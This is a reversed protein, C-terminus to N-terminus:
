RTSRSTRATGVRGTSSVIGAHRPVTAGPDFAASKEECHREGISRAIYQNSMDVAQSVNIPPDSLLVWEFGDRDADQGVVHV